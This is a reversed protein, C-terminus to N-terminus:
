FGGGAGGGMRRMMFIWFFLILLIPGFSVFFSELLDTRDEYRVEIEPKNSIFNDFSEASPISVELISEKGIHNRADESGYIEIFALSDNENITAEATEKNVIVIKSIYGKDVYQKFQNYAVQKADESNDWFTIGILFAGIALYLWTLNIKIPKKKNNPTNSNKESM